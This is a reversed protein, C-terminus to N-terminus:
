AVQLEVRQIFNDTAERCLSIFTEEALSLRQSKWHLIGWHRRLKRRGLPLAVLSGEEIEKRAVWPAMVGVGLGLKALEKIAEMSGLEIVSDLAIGEGLFYDNIMKFTLSKKDYLVYQQKPIEERTVRGQEGWLHTPSVLFVLEDDFLSLFDFQEEGKPELTLVLDVKRQRLLETAESSDGPLLSIEYHPFREKFGRLVSPLVHQCTTAGAGIRLRGQGWKGLKRLSDRAVDMERLIKGAHVLLQEGSQTLAVKKGVRDFLRCGLDQELAKMSHSVASQSLFLQKGTKTFSGTDALAAFARLQRSDIPENM